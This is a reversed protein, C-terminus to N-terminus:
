GMQALHLSKSIVDTLFSDQDEPLFLKKLSIRKPKLELPLYANSSQSIVHGSRMHIRYTDSEGKVYIFNDKVSIDASLKLGSLITKILDCRIRSIGSLDVESYAAVYKKAQDVESQLWSLDNGISCVSVFLDIDRMLESFLVSDLQHPPLSEGNSSFQLQLLQVHLSGYIKSRQGLSVEDVDLRVEMSFEPLRNKIHFDSYGTLASVSWGKSKALKALQDKNLIHGVFFAHEGQAEAFLYIERHVQPFPQNIKHAVLFRKWDNLEYGNYLPHWLRIQALPDIDLVEEGLLNKLKGEHFILTQHQGVQGVLWLTGSVARKVLPHDYYCQYWREYTLSYGTRYFNEVRLNIAKIDANIQKHSLIFEKLQEEYIENTQAPLSKILAGENDRFSIKAAGGYALCIESEAEPLALVVKGSESLGYDLVSEEVLQNSTMGRANATDVIAKEIRRQATKHTAKQRLKVLKSIGTKNNLQSYIYCIDQTYNPFWKAFQDIIETLSASPCMLSSLFIGRTIRGEVSFSYYYQSFSDNVWEDDLYHGASIKNKYCDTLWQKPIIEDNRTCCSLDYLWVRNSDARKMRSTCRAAIASAQGIFEEKGLGEILTGVDKFWKKAPKKYIDVLNLYCSFLKRWVYSDNGEECLRNILENEGVLLDLQHGDYSIDLFAKSNFYDEM